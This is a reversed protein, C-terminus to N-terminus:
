LHDLQIWKLLSLNKDSKQYIKGMFWIVIFNHLERGIPISIM